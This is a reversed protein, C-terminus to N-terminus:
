ARIPAQFALAMPAPTDRPENMVASTLALRVVDSRTVEIGLRQTEAEAIRDLDRVLTAPLRATLIHIDTSM